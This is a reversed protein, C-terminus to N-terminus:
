KNIKKEKKKEKPEEKNSELKEKNIDNTNKPDTSEKQTKSEM